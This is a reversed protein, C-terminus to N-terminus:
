LRRYTTTRPSDRIDAPYVGPGGNRDLDIKASSRMYANWVLSSCNLRAMTTKNSAFMIDYPRNRLHSYAFDAARNRNTQTTNVSQIQIGGRVGMPNSSNELRSNRGPGPAHIVSTRTYFIGSHGHNIGTWAISYFVDGKNNATGVGRNASSSRANRNNNQLEVMQIKAEQYFADLSDEFSLDEAHAYETVLAYLAEEDLDAHVQQILSLKDELSHAYAPISTLGGAFITASLILLSIKKLLSNKKM